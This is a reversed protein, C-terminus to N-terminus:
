QDAFAPATASVVVGTVNWTTGNCRFWLHTGPNPLNVQLKSNSNLDPGVIVAEAAATGADIDAHLVGGTFYNTDSGTTFIWDHGDAAAVDAIFEYMLGDDPSPLTITRDASVNAIIHPKGTNIDLVTYDADGVAIVRESRRTDAIVEGSENYYISGDQYRKQIVNGISDYRTELLEDNTDTLTATCTGSTDTTVIIRLHEHDRQTVWNYAVTANATSWQKLKEWAGSGPSGVERQLEIVMSYTGSLAVAAVDGKHTMNLTVSDGVSTFSAM